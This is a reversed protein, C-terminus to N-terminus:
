FLLLLDLFFISVYTHPPATTTLLLLLPPPALAIEGKEGHRDTHIQLYHYFFFLFLTSFSLTPSLFLFTPEPLPFNLFFVFFSFFSLILYIPIRTDHSFVLSFLFLFFISVYPHFFPFVIVINKCYKKHNRRFDTLQHTDFM